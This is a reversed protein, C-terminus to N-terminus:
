GWREAGRRSTQYDSVADNHRSHRIEPSHCRITKYLLAVHIAILGLAASCFKDDGFGTGDHVHPLVLIGKDRLVVGAVCARLAYGPDNVFMSGYGKRLDHERAKGGYTFVIQRWGGPPSESTSFPSQPRPGARGFPLAWPM